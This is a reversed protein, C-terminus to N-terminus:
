VNSQIVARLDRVFKPVNHVDKVYQIAARALNKRREDNTILERIANIYLGLKDFGDGLVDGTWIGFKSTLDDPNRNSVM